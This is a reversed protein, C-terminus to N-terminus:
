LKKKNLIQKNIQFLATVLKDYLKVITLNYPM